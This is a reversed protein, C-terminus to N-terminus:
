GLPNEPSRDAPNEALPRPVPGGSREATEPGELWYRRERVVTGRVTEGIPSIVEGDGGHTKRRRERDAARDPRERGADPGRASVPPEQAGDPERQSRPVLDCPAPVPATIWQTQGARESDRLRDELASLRRYTEEVADVRASLYGAGGPVVVALLAACALTFTRQKSM